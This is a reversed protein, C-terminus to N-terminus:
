KYIEILIKVCKQIYEFYYFLYTLFSIKKPSDM